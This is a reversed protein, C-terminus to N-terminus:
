ANVLEKETFYNSAGVLPEYEAERLVERCQKVTMGHANDTEQESDRPNSGTEAWLLNAGALAGSVYPEHTCNGAIHMGNCLRCVAVIHALRAQTLVKNNYLKSNPLNIRRAAGAFVPEIMRCFMLSELVEEHSHEPGVPEVCTGVKLGVSQAAKITRLRQEPHIRTDEGERLRLAHYIGCFGADKLRQAKKEGFDGLNAILPMETSIKAKVEQATEILKAFDYDATIMLYIANAGDQEFVQARRVVEDVPLESAESFVGAHKTFACFTCQCPCNPSINLGIQAHVEPAGAQWSMRRAAAIIMGSDDSFVPAKLLMYVEDEELRGGSESKRVIEKVKM